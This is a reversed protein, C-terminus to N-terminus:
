SVCDMRDLGRRTSRLIADWGRAWHETLILWILEPYIDNQMLYDADLVAELRERAVVDHQALTGDLLFERLFPLSRALCRGFYPTLAGKGSRSVVAAPLDRAFARRALGRDRFGETLSIVPLALVAEVTPQSLLPHVVDMTESTWSEGFALRAQFLAEVHLRKAPALGRVDGVWAPFAAARKPAGSLFPAANGYQREFRTRHARRILVSWFSRGTWRSLAELQRAQERWTGRCEAAIEIAAHQFFVADGGQGTFLATTGAANARMALDRDHFLSVAGISPRNGIPLDLLDDQTLTRVPMVTEVLPVAIHQAVARAYSREDGVADRTFYQYGTIAPGSKALAAAVIASDLGGSIECGIDAVGSRWRTVCDRVVGRIATASATSGSSNHAFAAANWFSTRRETRSQFEVAEGPVISVVGSLPPHDIMATPDHLTHSVRDWDISVVSRQALMCNRADSTIVRLGDDEWSICELAGIPDRFVFAAQNAADAWLLVYAGWCRESLLTCVSRFDSSRALPQCALSDIGDSGNRGFVRGVLLGHGGVLRTMGITENWTTIIWGSKRVVTRAGAVSTRIQAEFARARHGADAHAPDWWAAAFGIMIEIWSRATDAFLIRYQGRPRDLSTNGRCALLAGSISVAPRWFGL